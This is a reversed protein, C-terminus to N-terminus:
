CEFLHSVMLCAAPLERNLNMSAVLESHFPECFFPISSPFKSLLPVGKFASKSLLFRVRPVLLEYKRHLEVDDPDMDDESLSECQVKIWSSLKDVLEKEYAAMAKAFSPVAPQNSPTPPVDGFSLFCPSIHTAYAEAFLMYVDRTLFTLDVEWNQSDQLTPPAADRLEPDCETSAASM